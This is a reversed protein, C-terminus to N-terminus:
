TVPPNASAFTVPAAYWTLASSLTGNSCSATRSPSTMSTLSEEAHADDVGRAVGEGMQGVHELAFGGRDEGAARQEEAGGATGVQQAGVVGVGQGTVLVGRRVLQGVLEGVLGLDHRGM